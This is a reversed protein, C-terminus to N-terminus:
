ITAPIGFSYLSTNSIHPTCKVKWCLERPFISKRSDVWTGVVMSGVTRIFAGNVKHLIDKSSCIQHELHLSTNVCSHIFESPIKRSAHRSVMKAQIAQRLVILFVKLMPLLHLLACIAWSNVLDRHSSEANQSPSIAVGLHCKM